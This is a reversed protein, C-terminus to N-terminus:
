FRGVAGAQVGGNWGVSPTIKWGTTPAPRAEKTGGWRTLASIVGTLVGIGITTGLLINTRRQRSLGDQYAPCSEGLNVCEREVTDRGPNNRTDLGSWVTVGALVVTAGLGV